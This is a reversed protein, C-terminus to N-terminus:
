GPGPSQRGFSALLQTQADADAPVDPRDGVAGASRYLEERGTFWTAVAAVLEPDLRDDQGTAVALDWGHILHDALLQWAYEEGPVDGFSLHVMRGMAGGEGVAAVAEQGAARVAGVPDSGLLDGEFRDGVDTVTSGAMLPVTWKDEYALHNVLARVHWDLCPTPLEWQDDKVGETLEAFREVSRRHWDAVSGQM